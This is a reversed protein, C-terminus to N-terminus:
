TSGKATSSAETPASSKTGLSCLFTATAPKCISQGMAIHHVSDVVFYANVERAIKGSEKLPSKTGLVNSAAAVAVVRTDEDVLGKLHEMDLTGEDKNLRAFRVERIM